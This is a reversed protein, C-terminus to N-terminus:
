ECDFHHRCWVTFIQIWLFNYEGQTPNIMSLSVSISGLAVSQIEPRLSGNWLLCPHAPMLKWDLRSVVRRGDCKDRTAALSLAMTATVVHRKYSEVHCFPFRMTTEQGHDLGHDHSPHRSRVPTKGAGPHSPSHNAGTVM